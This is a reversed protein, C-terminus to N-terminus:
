GISQAGEDTLRVWVNVPFVEAEVLGQAALYLLCERVVDQDLQLEAVLEHGSTEAQQNRRYSEALYALIREQSRPDCTM